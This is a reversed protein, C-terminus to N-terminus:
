DNLPNKGIKAVRLPPPLSDAGKPYLPTILSCTIGGLWGHNHNAYGHYPPPPPPPAVVTKAFASFVSNFVSKLSSFVLM